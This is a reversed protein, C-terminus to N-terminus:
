LWAPFWPISAHTASMGGDQKYFAYISKKLAPSYEARLPCKMCSKKGGVDLRKAADVLGKYDMIVGLLMCRLHVIEETFSDWVDFGTEWLEELETVLKDYLLTTDAPHTGQLIGYLELYEYKGRIEAPLNLIQFYMPFVGEKNKWVVAGDACFLIIINRYEQFFDKYQERKQKWAEGDAGHLLVYTMHRCRISIHQVHIAFTNCVDYVLM